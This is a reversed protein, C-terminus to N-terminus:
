CVVISALNNSHGVLMKGVDACYLYEASDLFDFITDSKLRQAVQVDLLM